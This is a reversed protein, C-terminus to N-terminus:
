ATGRGDDSRIETSPGLLATPLERPSIGYAHRFRSSFHSPDKFGWKRSVLAITGTAGARTCDPGATSGELREAIICDVLKVGAADCLKYLYRVSINHARAITVPTLDRDTLHQRVYAFVRPGACGDACIPHASTSHPRCSSRKSSSRGHCSRNRSSSRECCRPRRRRPPCSPAPQCALFLPSAPPTHKGYPGTEVTVGMEDFPFEFPLRPARQHPIRQPRHSRDHPPRGPMLSRSPGGGDIARCRATARLSRDDTRAVRRATAIVRLGPEDPSFLKISGFM